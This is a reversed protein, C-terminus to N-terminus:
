FLYTTTLFRGLASVSVLWCGTSPARVARPPLLPLDLKQITTRVFEDAAVGARARTGAM